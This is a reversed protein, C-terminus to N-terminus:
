INLEKEIEDNIDKQMAIQQIMNKREKKKKENKTYKLFISFTPLLIFIMLIIFILWFALLLYETISYDIIIKLSKMIETSTTYKYEFWIM